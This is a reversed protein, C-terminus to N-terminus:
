GEGAPVAVHVGPRVGAEPGHGAGRRGPARDGDRDPAAGVGAREAVKAPLADLLGSPTVRAAPGASVVAFDPAGALYAMAVVTVEGSDALLRILSGSLAVVQWEAGGFVVRDWVRLIVREAV